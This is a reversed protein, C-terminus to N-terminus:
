FRHPPLAWGIKWFPRTCVASTPGTVAGYIEFAKSLSMLEHSEASTTERGGSRFDRWAM